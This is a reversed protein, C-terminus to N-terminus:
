RGGCFQECLSCDSISLIISGEYMYHLYIINLGKNRCRWWIKERTDVALLYVFLHPTPTTFTNPVYFAIHM